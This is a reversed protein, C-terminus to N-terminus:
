FFRPPRAACRYGPKGSRRCEHPFTGCGAPDGRKGDGPEGGAAECRCKERGARYGSTIHGSRGHAPSVPSRHDAPAARGVLSTVGADKVGQLRLQLEEAMRRLAYDSYRASYLTINIIPVDDIEVPKVVWGSVGPPVQDINSRIKNYLKVWSRERDEGVYFRVTVVAMSPFSMSYVHKVGDIQYLLKELRSSIQREVEAASAGPMHIFVDAVPVVIQPDEERPTMLLAGISAMLSILILIVSLNGKLFAEVIGSIWGHSASNENM